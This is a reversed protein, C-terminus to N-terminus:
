KYRSIFFSHHIIYHILILSLYFISHGVGSFSFLEAGDPTRSGERKDFIGIIEPSLAPTSTECLRVIIILFWYIFKVNSM